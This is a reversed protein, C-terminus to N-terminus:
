LGPEVFHEASREWYGKYLGDTGDFNIQYMRFFVDFAKPQWFERYTYGYRMGLRKMVAGSKPNNRDHTATVFPVGSARLVGFLAACAETMFGRGRYERQLCYGLDRAEGGSVTVYGVPAFDTEKPCVALFLGGDALRKRLHDEADARTRFPFLPLFATTEADSLLSFLFDADEAQMQRLRLRDTECFAM